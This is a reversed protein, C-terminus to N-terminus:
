GDIVSYIVGSAVSALLSGALAGWWSVDIGPAIEAGGKFLVMNVVLAFLGFTLCSIPLTLLDVVPKIVANILGAVLGFIVVSEASEYRLLDESIAGLALAAVMTAIAYAIIRVM